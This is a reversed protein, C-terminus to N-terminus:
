AGGKVNLADTTAPTAGSGTGTTQATLWDKLERVPFLVARGVRVHPIDGTSVLTQLTRESIGLAEAAERTRLALCVPIDKFDAPTKPATPIRTTHLSM